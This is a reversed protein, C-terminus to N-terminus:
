QLELLPPTPVLTSLLAQNLDNYFYRRYGGPLTKTCELCTRVMALMDAISPFWRLCWGVDGQIKTCGCLGVEVSVRVRVTRWVCLTKTCELCTGQGNDEEVEDREEEEEEDIKFGVVTV